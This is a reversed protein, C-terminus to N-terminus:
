TKLIKRKSSESNIVGQNLNEQKEIEPYEVLLWRYVRLSEEKLFPLDNLDLPNM